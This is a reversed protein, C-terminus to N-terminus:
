AHHHPTLRELEAPSCLLPLLKFLDHAECTITAAAFVSARRDVGGFAIFRSCPSDTATAAELDTAGDGVLVLPGPHSARIARLVEPKGGSRTLPCLRDFGEYAGDPGHQTDVAHVGQAEIGLHRAFIAVPITLGGSVIGVVKGLSRLDEVLERGHPLAREIYAQGVAELDARSPRVLDLRAGYVEELPVSGEMAQATMTRIREAVEGGAAQVLFEIGELASLTSDCDFIVTGYPPPADSLSNM